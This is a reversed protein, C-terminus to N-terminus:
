LPRHSGGSLALTLTSNSGPAITLCSSACRRTVVWWSPMPSACPRWVYTVANECLPNFVNIVPSPNLALQSSASGLPMTYTFTEPTVLITVISVQTQVLVTSYFPAAPPALTWVFPLSGVLTSINPPTSSSDIVLSLTDSTNALLRIPANQNTAPRSPLALVSTVWPPLAQLDVYYDVDKASTITWTIPRSSHTVVIGSVNTYSLVQVYTSGEAQM